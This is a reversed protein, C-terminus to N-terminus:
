TIEVTKDLVNPKVGPLETQILIARKTFFPAVAIMQAADAVAKECAALREGAVAFPIIKVTAVMQKPAVVTDPELTALTISEDIANLRDVAARDIRCLGATEAFLNARGTFAPAATIGAGVLKRAIRNAAEDEGIDGPELQAAVVSALGATRLAAVDDATLVRGKRFVRGGLKLNHALIAGAAQDLPTDGFKM